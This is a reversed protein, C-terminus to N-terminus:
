NGSALSATARGQALQRQGHTVSFTYQWASPSEHVSRASVILEGPLAHVYDCDLLVDRLLVLLGARARENRARARLGGHVAMAQAGYECLHIASLRGNLLLPNAPDRHSSTALKVTSDDWDLVRELLCMRGSHPVLAALDVTFNM